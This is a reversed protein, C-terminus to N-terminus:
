PLLTVKNSFCVLLLILKKRESFSKKKLINFYINYIHSVSWVSWIIICTSLILKISQARDLELGMTPQQLVEVAFFYFLRRRRMHM